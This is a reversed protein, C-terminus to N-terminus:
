RGGRVPPATRTAFNFTVGGTVMLTTSNADLHSITRGISGFAMLPGIAVSVNGSVDTRNQAVGLALSAEDAGISHSQSITGTIWVRDSAPVEVAGSAFLAGRSFYGASGYVRARSGRLEINGPIAWGVRSAGISPPATLVELLPTISFGPGRKVRAPDRLQVKGSIYVDGLGHAVAGGPEGAHFYPVSVGVQVRKTLGVAADATPVDWEHYAPTRWYGASLTISGSGPEVISADDLWTGFARAGGASPQVSSQIEPASAASPAGGRTQHGFAHGRGQAAASPAIACFFLFVGALHRVGM